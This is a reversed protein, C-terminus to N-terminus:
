DSGLPKNVTYRMAKHFIFTDSEYMDIGSERKFNLSKMTLDVQDAMDSTSGKSWIDIQMSIDSAYATDDFYTSDINNLEFFTIRPYHDGDKAVHLYIPISGFKDLGLIGTLTANASMANGVIPKLDIV